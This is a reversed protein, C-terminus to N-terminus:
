DDGDGDPDDESPAAAPRASRATRSPSKKEKPKEEDDDDDEVGSLEQQIASLLAVQGTVPIKEAVEQPLDTVQCIIQVRTKKLRTALKTGVETNSTLELESAILSHRAFLAMTRAEDEGSLHDLGLLQYEEGDVSFKKAPALATSLTLALADSM